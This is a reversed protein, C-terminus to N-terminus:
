FVAGSGWGSNPNILWGVTKNQQVKVQTIKKLHIWTKSDTMCRSGAMGSSALRVLISTKGFAWRSCPWVGSLCSFFQSEEVHEEIDPSSPIHSTRRVCFIFAKSKCSLSTFWLLLVLCVVSSVEQKSVGSLVGGLETLISDSVSHRSISDWRWVTWCQSVGLCSSPSSYFLCAIACMQHLEPLM